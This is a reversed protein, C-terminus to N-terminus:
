RELCEEKGIVSACTSCALDFMCVHEPNSLCLNINVTPKLIFSVLKLLEYYENSAKSASSMRKVVITFFNQHKYMRELVDDTAVTLAANLIRVCTRVNTNTYGREGESQAANITISCLYPILYNEHITPPLVSNLMRKFEGMNLESFSEMRSAFLKSLMAEDDISITPSGDLLSDLYKSVIDGMGKTQHNSSSSSSTGVLVPAQKRMSDPSPCRIGSAKLSLKVQAFFPDEKYEYCATCLFENSNVMEVENINFKKKCESCTKKVTFSAFANSNNNANIDDHKQRKTNSANRDVDHQQRKTNLIMLM